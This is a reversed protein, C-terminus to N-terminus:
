IIMYLKTNNLIISTRSSTYIGGSTDVPKGDIFNGNWKLYSHVFKM